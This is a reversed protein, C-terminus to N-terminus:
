QRQLEDVRANIEKLEVNIANLQEELTRKDSRLKDLRRILRDLELRAAASGTRLVSPDDGTINWIFRVDGTRTTAQSISGSIQLRLDRVGDLYNKGTKPDFRPFWIMGDRKGDVKFNFRRDYDVPELTARGAYLRLQRDFPQLYVPVGTVDFEVHFAITEELNLTKLLNYKYSEEEDRTWLNKEAESRVLAEIYEASYYTVRIRVFQAGSGESYEGSRSWAALIRQEIGAASATQAYSLVCLAVIAACLLVMRKRIM